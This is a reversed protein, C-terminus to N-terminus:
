PRSTIGASALEYLRGFARLAVLLDDEPTDEVPSHSVGGTSSSFVMVAPLVRAVEACDHLAGSPLRPAEDGTIEAIASAALDVLREDFPIPDIQWIRRWEVEVGEESAIRDAAAKVDALMDRLQEPTFARQDLTVECRENIITPIGPEAKVTGITAVGGREIASERAALGFRGAALFADRRMDMPTSGAHSARGTFVIAHREVGYCGVVAAAPKGAEELRPGQEIHLELYADVGDLTAEGM